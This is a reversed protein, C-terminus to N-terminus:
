SEPRWEDLVFEAVRVIASEYLHRLQEACRNALALDSFVGEVDDDEYQYGRTVVFVSRSV